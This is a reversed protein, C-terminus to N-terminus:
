GFLSRVRGLLGASGDDAASDAETTDIDTDSGGADTDTGAADTDRDATDPGDVAAADAGDELRSESEASHVASDASADSPTEPAADTDRTADADSEADPETVAAADPDVASDTGNELTPDGDSPEDATEATTTATRSDDQAEATPTEADGGDPGENTSPTSDVPDDDRRDDSGATDVWLFEGDKTRGTLLLETLEDEDARLEDDVPTAPDPEPEAASAIIDDPTEDALVDDTDGEDAAEARLQDFVEAATRDEVEDPDDGDAEDGDGRETRRGAGTDTEEFEGFLEDTSAGVDLGGDGPSDTTSDTM